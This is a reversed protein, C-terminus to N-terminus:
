VRSSSVVFVPSVRRNAISGVSVGNSPTTSKHCRWAQATAQDAMGNKAHDIITIGDAGMEAAQQQLKATSSGFTGM